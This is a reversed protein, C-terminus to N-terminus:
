FTSREEEYTGWVSRLVDAIEGITGYARVADLLAPMINDDGQAVSALVALRQRLLGNDRTHRLHQLRAIQEHEVRPEIKLIEVPPDDAVFANV